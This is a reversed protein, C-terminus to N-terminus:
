VGMPELALNYRRAYCPDHIVLESSPGERKPPLTVLTCWPRSSSGGSASSTETSEMHLIFHSLVVHEDHWGQCDSESKLPAYAQGMAAAGGM